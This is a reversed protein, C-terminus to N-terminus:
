DYMPVRRPVHTSYVGEDIVGSPMYRKAAASRVPSSRRSSRLPVGPGSFSRPRESGSGGSGPHSGGTSGGSYSGRRGEEPELNFRQRPVSRPPPMSTYQPPEPAPTPIPGDYMPERFRIDASTPPRSYSRGEHRSKSSRTSYLDQSGYARGPASPSLDRYPKRTYADHSHRRGRSDVPPSLNRHRHSRHRSLSDPVPKRPSPESPDVDPPYSYSHSHGHSHSYPNPRSAADEREGSLPSTHWASYDRGRPRPPRDVYPSMGPSRTRPSSVGSRGSDPRVRSRPDSRHSSEDHSDSPDKHRHSKRRCTPRDSDYHASSKHRRSSTRQPPHSFYDEEEPLPDKGSFHYHFPGFNPPSARHVNRKIYDHELRKAVGEHWQLMEPDPESPFADRPITKPFLEGKADAINWTEVANNLFRWHEDPDMLLQITQWRVFGNPCLSPIAPPEYPSSSPQLSHFCGLSQYIFSLAQPKTELFLPDYNGGVKRYFAALRDPTLDTTPNSDFSHMIQAIGLCLQELMSAPSKDPNILTGWQSAASAMNPQASTSTSSREFSADSQVSSTHQPLADPHSSVTSYLILARSEDGPLSSRDPVAAACM